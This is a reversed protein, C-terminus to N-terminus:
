TSKGWSTGATFLFPWPHVGPLGGLAEQGVKISMGPDQHHFNLNLHWCAQSFPGEQETHLPIPRRQLVEEGRGRGSYSLPRPKKNSLPSRALQSNYTLTDFKLAAIPPHLKFSTIGQFAVWSQWFFFTNECGIQIIFLVNSTQVLCGPHGSFAAAQLFLLATQWQFGM